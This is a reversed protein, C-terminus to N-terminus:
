ELSVLMCPPIARRAVSRRPANGNVFAAEACFEVLKLDYVWQSAAPGRTGFETEGLPDVLRLSAHLNDAPPNCTVLVPVKPDRPVHLVFSASVDYMPPSAGWRWPLVGTNALRELVKPFDDSWVEWEGHPNFRDNAAPGNLAYLLAQTFRSLGVPDGYSAQSPATSRLVACRRPNVPQSDFDPAIVDQGLSGNYGYLWSPLSRCADIAFFQRRALCREMGEAFSSLNLANSFRNALLPNADFDQFLLSSVTGKQLGHGCFYVLAINDEHSSARHLWGNSGPTLEGVAAVFNDITAPDVAQNAWRASPDPGEPGVPPPTLLLEVSGLPTSPLNFEEILWKAFAVASRAASPLGPEPFKPYHGVGVVLAHLAPGGPPNAAYVVTM